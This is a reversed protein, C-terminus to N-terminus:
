VSASTQGQNIRYGTLCLNNNKQNAIIYADRLTLKQLTFIAATLYVDFYLGRSCTFVIDKKEVFFSSM